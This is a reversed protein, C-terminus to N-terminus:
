YVEEQAILEDTGGVREVSFVGNVKSIRSTVRTLHQLNKVEIIINSHVIADEARMEISVINTDTQSISDSVDRLFHKRDEGLLQLRVMFHKNPEVDWQVEVRREPNELLRLINKCDSRHVVVGRGQNLFGLIRDGPVPQCCKGFNILLNDLGQVRVGKSVGRAKDIIKKFISKSEESEAEEPLIKAVVSQASIDGRGVAAHLDTADHCGLLPAVEDLDIDNKSVHVRKFMRELMEEGLKQSQEVMSEKLWRKIKARAKSTQVFKIWDKNPRQNASTIIEVTDGSKLKYNLPVIRGNVKAGICHIGIDTHVAFAFDVPTSGLPLKHLRGKPTFVFVEDQFLDIRLNEMFEKPDDTDHQWELMQRLWTLQKDLENAKQKGEKYRWHAAVGVEATRHMDETRIQIEVMKGDAGFVTTHLSQYLNSKPTAIYDKFREAVPTFQNHVIGLVFYCDETRKVVIRVALLDFIEEFSKDRNLMKLFISYLHKPRGTIKATIGSDRLAARIPATFRNIYAEREERKEAIKNVLNWYAQPALTKFALDELEWRMKAIGLRHALPAYIERTELAIRRQKKEPLYEITRMNHLRDAFKILIVRIDKVMSLLMKRFNEAQRVEVSDFKLESIKTVGDVLGAIEEGFKDRV